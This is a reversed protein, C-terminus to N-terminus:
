RPLAEARAADLREVVERDSTQAFDDYWHGVGGFAEPMLLCVVEDADRRMEQVTDPPGVPVALVVRRAGQARTVQCAARATAGTALGDDVVVAVRDRLPIRPHDHRYRRLRAHLEDRERAEVQELQGQGIRALRLVDDNLVRTGGEGIAGMALEPQYPVGLKRVVVVDLPAGLAHAVEAAVVVGGRPLGLVVVNEHALPWLAQGLRRGADIRDRFRGPEVIQQEPARRAM